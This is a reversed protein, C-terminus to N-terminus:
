NKKQFPALSLAFSPQSSIRQLVEIGYRTKSPIVTVSDLLTNEVLLFSCFHCQRTRKGILFLEM